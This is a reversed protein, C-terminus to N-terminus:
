ASECQSFRKIGGRKRPMNVLHGISGCCGAASHAWLLALEAGLEGTEEVGLTEQAAIEGQALPGAALGSAAAHRLAQLVLGEIQDEAGFSAVLLDENGLLKALQHGLPDLIVLLCSVEELLDRQKM